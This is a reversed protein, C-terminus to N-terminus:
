EISSCQDQPIFRKNEPGEGWFALSPEDTIIKRQVKPGAICFRLHGRSLTPPGEYRCAYDQNQSSKLSKKAVEWRWRVQTGLKGRRM